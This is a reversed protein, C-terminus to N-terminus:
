LGAAGGTTVPKYPNKKLETGEKRVSSSIEKIGTMQTPYPFSHWSLHFLM